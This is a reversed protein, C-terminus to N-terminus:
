FGLAYFFTKWQPLTAVFEKSGISAGIQAVPVDVDFRRMM